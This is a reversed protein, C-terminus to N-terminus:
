KATALLALHGRAGKATDIRSRLWDAGGLSELKNRQAPTLRLEFRATMGKHPPMPPRGRRPTATTIPANIM